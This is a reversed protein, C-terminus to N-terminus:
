KHCNAVAKQLDLSTTVLKERNDSVLQELRQVNAGVDDRLRDEGASIRAELSRLERFRVSSCVFVGDHDDGIIAM